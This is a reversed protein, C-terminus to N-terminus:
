GVDSKERNKKEELERESKEIRAVMKKLEMIGRRRVLRFLWDILERFDPDTIFLEYLTASEPFQRSAWWLVAVAFVTPCILALGLAWGQVLAITSSTPFVFAKLTVLVAVPLWPMMVYFAWRTFRTPM